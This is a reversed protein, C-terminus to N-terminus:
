PVQTAITVGTCGSTATGADYYYSGHVIPKTIKLPNDCRLGAGTVGTSQNGVVSAGILNNPNGALAVSYLLPGRFRNGNIVFRGSDRGTARAGFGNCTACAGTIENGTVTMDQTSETSIVDTATDNELENGSLTIRSPYTGSAGVIRVAPGATGGPRRIISGTVVVQNSATIQLAGNGDAPSTDIITDSIAVRSAYTMGVRGNVHSSALVVDTTFVTSQGGISIGGTLIQLHHMEFRQIPGTGTPEMDVATKGVGCLTLDHLLVDQVGRQVAVGSRPCAEFTVSGIDVMSIPASGDGVMRLCDGAGAITHRLVLHHIMVKSIPGLAAAVSQLSLLHAEVSTNFADDSAITLNSVEVRQTPDGTPSASIRVGQWDAGGGDGTMMLVTAPGEGELALDSCELWLSADDRAGPASAARTLVWHGTTLHVTGGGAACAADLSAQICARDDIGDDPVCAPTILAARTPQSTTQGCATLILLITALKNM